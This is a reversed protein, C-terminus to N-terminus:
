FAPFKVSIFEVAQGRELLIPKAGCRALALACFLGGPGAGVVVPPLAPAAIPDPLRYPTETVASVQKSRCRRLIQGENKLSVRVTYTFHVGDRADIARRLIQIQRIEGPSVRLLAAAKQPLLAESENLKLKIQEIQLM